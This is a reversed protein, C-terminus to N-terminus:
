HSFDKMVILCCSQSLIISAWWLQMAAQQNTFPSKWKSSRQWLIVLWQWLIVSLMKTRIRGDNSEFDTRYTELKRVNISHKESDKVNGNWKEILNGAKQSWKTQRKTENKDANTAKKGVKKGTYSGLTSPGSRARKDAKKFIRLKRWIVVVEKWKMRWEVENMKKSISEVNDVKVRKDDSM